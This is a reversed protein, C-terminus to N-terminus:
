ANKDHVAQEEACELFQDPYKTVVRILIKTSPPPQRRGQEWGRVTGLPTNLLKAFVEQTMGLQMRANAVENGPNAVRIRTPASEGSEGSKIAKKIAKM